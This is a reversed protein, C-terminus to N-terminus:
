GHPGAPQGGVLPPPQGCVSRRVSSRLRAHACRPTKDSWRRPLVMITMSTHVMSTASPGVRDAAFHRRACPSHNTSAASVWPACSHSQTTRRHPTSSSTVKGSSLPQSRKWAVGARGPPGPRRGPGQSRCTPRGRGRRSCHRGPAEGGAVSEDARRPAVALALDPVLRRAVAARGVGCGARPPRRLRSAVVDPGLGPDRVAIGRPDDATPATIPRM